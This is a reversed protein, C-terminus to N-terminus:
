REDDAGKQSHKRRKSKPAKGGRYARMAKNFAIVAGVMKYLRFNIEKLLVTVDYYVTSKCVGFREAAQRVTANHEIIYHAMDEIIDPDFTRPM